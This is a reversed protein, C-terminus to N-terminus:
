TNMELLSTPNMNSPVRFITLPEQFRMNVQVKVMRREVKHFLNRKALNRNKNCRLWM